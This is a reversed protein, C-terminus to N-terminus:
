PKSFILNCDKDSLLWYGKWTDITDTTSSVVALQYAGNISHFFTGVVEGDTESQTITKETGCNVKLNKALVNGKYPNGVINWGKKIPTSFTASSIETGKPKLSKYGWVYYGIGPQVSTAQQYAQTTPNYTKVNNGSVGFVGAPTPTDPTLAVSAMNWNSQGLTVPPVLLAMLGLTTTNARVVKNSTDVISDLCTWIQGSINRCIKLDLVSILPATDLKLDDDADAYPIEVAINNEETTTGTTTIDHFSQANDHSAPVTAAKTVPDPTTITVTANAAYTGAPVTISANTTAVSGGSTANITEQSNGANQTVDASSNNITVTIFGPTTDIINNTNTAVARLKYDGTTLASVDWHIFYPSALDPNATNSTPAIPIAEWQSNGSNYYEFRINKLDSHSGSIQEAMIQLQNGSYKKGSYPIKIAASVGAVTPDTLATAAATACTASTNGAGDVTKIAYQYTTGNSLTASTWTTVPHTTSASSTTNINGSGDYGYIDYFLNLDTAPSRLWTLQIKADALPTAKLQAICGPTETDLPTISPATYASINGATDIADFTYWYTSGPNINTDTFTALTGQHVLNGKQGSTTSRYLRILAFDNAPNTWNITIQNGNAPYNSTVNTVAGPGTVDALTITASVQATNTTENGLQDIARITYYYTTGNELGTDTKSTTTQNDYLLPGVTGSATSRYIHIHALDSATPKTWSLTITPTPGTFTASQNGPVAPPTKDLTTGSVQATNTSENGATDVSRVTYYYKTQSALLTDTYKIGTIENTPIILNGLQGAVTSRYIHIHNFDTDSPKTWTTILQGPLTPLQTETNTPASPPTTDLTTGTVQVTQETSFPSGVFSSDVSQVSWYYTGPSLDKITWTRNQQVNGFAPVKRAGNGAAHPSVIQVGGSSTGVRLNYTLGNSPTHDDSAADWTFTVSSGNVSSQSTTPALPKVNTVASKNEFLRTKFGVGDEGTLLLDLDGDGDYDGMAVANAVNSFGSHQLIPLGSNTSESFTGSSNLYVRAPLRDLNNTTGILVVDLDGDNDLDGFKACGYRGQAPSLTQHLSFTGATNVYIRVDNSRAYLLDLDGDNDVDGWAVSGPHTEAVPLGANINVFSGNDNRYINTQKVAGYGNESSLVVLDLDGDKDYDGWAASGSRSGNIPANIDVFAGDDNRYIKGFNVSSSTMGQVFLDLDGDNDYDGWDASPTYIIGAIGLSVATFVGASDNRLVTTPAFGAVLIDLDGDNDFDPWAGFGYAAGYPLFGANINSFTGSGDNRFIRGQGSVGPQQDPLLIDLDGDNDYDGWVGGSSVSINASVETFLTPATYVTYLGTAIGGSTGVLDTAFYKITMHSGVAIPASYTASSTTPTSGDTTYYIKDCGSGVGDNCSLVVSQASYYNGPGPTATTIPPSDLTIADSYESSWNGENDKFKAYVIKAGDGDTLTWWSKSTAYAEPTSWSLNDNSFQMEVCGVDDTCSLDLPVYQSTAIAAGSNISVSGTPPTALSMDPVSLLVLSVGCIVRCLESIRRVNMM